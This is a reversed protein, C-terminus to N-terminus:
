ALRFWVWWEIETMKVSGPFRREQSSLHMERLCQSVHYYVIRKTKVYLHIEFFDKYRKKQQSTYIYICSLYLDSKVPRIQM